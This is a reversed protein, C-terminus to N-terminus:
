ETKKKDLLAYTYTHTPDFHMYIHHDFLTWFCAYQELEVM